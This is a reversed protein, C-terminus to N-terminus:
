FIWRWLSMEIMFYITVTYDLTETFIVYFYEIGGCFFSGDCKYIM